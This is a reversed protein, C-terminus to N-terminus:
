DGGNFNIKGKLNNFLHTPILKTIQNNVKWFAM